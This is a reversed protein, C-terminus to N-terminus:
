SSIHCNLHHPHDTIVNIAIIIVIFILVIVIIVIIVIFIIIIIVKAASSYHPNEFLNWLRKQTVACMGDGFEEEVNDGQWDLLSHSHVLWSSPHRLYKGLEGTETTEVITLLALKWLQLHM